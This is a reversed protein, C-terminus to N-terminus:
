FIIYCSINQLSLATLLLEASNLLVCFRANRMELQTQKVEPTKTKLASMM